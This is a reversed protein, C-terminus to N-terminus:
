AREKLFKSGKISPDEEPSREQQEPASCFAEGEHCSDIYLRYCNSDKRLVQRSQLRLKRIGREEGFQGNERELEHEKEEYFRILEILM